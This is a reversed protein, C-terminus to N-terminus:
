TGLNLRILLMGDRYETVIKADEVSSPLALTREFRSYAIEMSHARHGDPTTWDRRVGRVTLCRGQVCLELDEVRIGALDLKVLWGATGRYIDAPPRWVSEAYASDASGLLSDMLRILDSTM